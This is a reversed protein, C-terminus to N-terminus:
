ECGLTPDNQYIYTVIEPDYTTSHTIAKLIQDQEISVFRLMDMAIRASVLASLSTLEEMYETRGLHIVLTFWFFIREDIKGAGEIIPSDLAFLWDIITQGIQSPSFVFRIASEYTIDIVSGSCVCVQGYVAKSETWFCGINLISTTKSISNNM